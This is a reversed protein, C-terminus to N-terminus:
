GSEVKFKDDITIQHATYDSIEPIPGLEKFFDAVTKRLSDWDTVDGKYTMIGYIDLVGGANRSYFIIREGSIEYFFEAKMDKMFVVFREM